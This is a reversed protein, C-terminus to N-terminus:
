DGECGALLKLFVLLERKVLKKTPKSSRAIMQFIDLYSDDYM